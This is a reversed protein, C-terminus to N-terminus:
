LSKGTSEMCVTAQRRQKLTIGYEKAYALLQEHTFKTAAWRVTDCSYALDPGRRSAHSAQASAPLLLIFTVAILNKMPREPELELYLQELL